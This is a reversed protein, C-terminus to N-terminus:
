EIIMDAQRTGVREGIANLRGTEPDVADLLQQPTIKLKDLKEQRVDALVEALRAEVEGGQRLYREQIMEELEFVNMKRAAEAYNDINKGQVTAMMMGLTNLAKDEALSYMHLTATAFEENGQLLSKRISTLMPLVMSVQETDFNATVLLQKLGEDTLGEPDKMMKKIYMQVQSAERKMDLANLYPKTNAGYSFGEIEQIAHQIEHVLSRKADYGKNLKITGTGGEAAEFSAINNKAAKDYVRFTGDEMKETAIVVKYNRLQPYSEFLAPHDIVQELTFTHPVATGHPFNKFKAIDEPALLKNIDNVIMDADSVTFRLFGDEGRFIGTKQVLDEVSHGLKELAVFEDMKSTPANRALAGAFFAGKALAGAKTPISPSIISGLLYNTDETDLGMQTGYWDGTAPIENFSKPWAFDGGKAVNYANYGLATSVAVLDAPAGLATSVFTKGVDIVQSKVLDFEGAQREEEWRQQSEISLNMAAIARDEMEKDSMPEAELAPEQSAISIMSQEPTM